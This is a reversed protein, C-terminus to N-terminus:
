SIESIALQIRPGYRDTGYLDLVFSCEGNQELTLHAPNVFGSEELLALLRERFRRLMSVTVPAPDTSYSHFSQRGDHLKCAIVRGDEIPQVAWGSGVQGEPRLTWDEQTTVLVGVVWSPSGPKLEGTEGITHWRFKAGISPATAEAPKAERAKTATKTAM